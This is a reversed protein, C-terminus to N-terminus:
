YNSKLLIQRRTKFSYHKLQLSGGSTLTKVLNAVFCTAMPATVEHGSSNTLRLPKKASNEYNALLETGNLLDQLKGQVLYKSTAM